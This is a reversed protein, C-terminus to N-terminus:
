GLMWGWKAGLDRLFLRFAGALGGCWLLPRLLDPHADPCLSPLLPPLFLVKLFATEM